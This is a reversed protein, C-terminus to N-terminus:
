VRGRVLEAGIYDIYHVTKKQVSRLTFLSYINCKKDSAVGKDSGKLLEPKRARTSNEVDLSDRTDHLVSM